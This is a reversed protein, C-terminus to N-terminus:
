GGEGALAGAHREVGVEEYHSMWDSWSLLEIEFVMTANPPIMQSPCHFLGFRQLKNITVQSSVPSSGSTSWARRICVDARM